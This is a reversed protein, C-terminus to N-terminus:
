KNIKSTTTLKIDNKITSFIGKKDGFSGGFKNSNKDKAPNIIISAPMASTKFILGSNNLSFIRTGNKNSNINNINNSIINNNV